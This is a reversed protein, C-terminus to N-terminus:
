FKKYKWSFMRKRQFGMNIRKVPHNFESINIMNSRVDNKIVQTQEILYEINEEMFMTREMETLHIYDVYVSVKNNGFQVSASTGDCNILSELNRFKARLRIEISEPVSVIPFAM